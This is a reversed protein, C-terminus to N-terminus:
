CTTIGERTVGLSEAPITTPYGRTQFSLNLGPLIMNHTYNIIQVRVYEIEFYDGATDGIVTGEARLYDVQVNATTLDPLITSDTGAGSFATARAIADDGVPCVAAVRAGRRTAEELLNVTFMLRSVELSGFLIMLAALGVVAFEVIYLGGQKTVSNALLRTRNNNIM